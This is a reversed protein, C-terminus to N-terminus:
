EKLYDWLNKTDEIDTIDPPPKLSEAIDYIKELFIQSSSTDNVIYVVPELHYFQLKDNELSCTCNLTSFGVRDYCDNLSYNVQLRAVKIIGKKLCQDWVFGALFNFKCNNIFLAM